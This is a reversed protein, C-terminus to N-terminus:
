LLFPFIAKRNLPYDPFHNHYWRHHQLARPLLNAVTWLWFALGALSWTMLAWGGWILIEGLYNPCSIYEYLGGRPISYAQKDEVRLRRLVTDAWRNIIYGTIFVLVGGLFRPDTLWALGYRDTPALYYIWGAQLTVNVLQFAFAMGAVLLPMGKDERILWPFVLVRQGYHIFWVAMMVVGTIGQRHPSLFFLLLYLWITPSEMLMWGIRSNIRPGWGKVGYRGYPAPIFLLVVFFVISSIMFGYLFINYMKESLM